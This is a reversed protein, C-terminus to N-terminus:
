QKYLCWINHASVEVKEKCEEDMAAAIAGVEEVENHRKKIVMKCKNVDM